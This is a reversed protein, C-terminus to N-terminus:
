LDRPWLGLMDLVKHEIDWYPLEDPHRRIHSLARSMYTRWDRISAFESPDRRHLAEMLEGFQEWKKDTYEDRDAIDVM